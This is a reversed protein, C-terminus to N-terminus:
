VNGPSHLLAHRGNRMLHPAMCPSSHSKGMEVTRRASAPSDTSPHVEMCRSMTKARHDMAAIPPLPPLSTEVSFSFEWLFPLCRAVSALGSGWQCSVTRTRRVTGRRRLFEAPQEYVTSTVFHVFAALTHRALSDLDQQCQSFSAGSASTMDQVRTREASARDHSSRVTISTFLLKGFFLVCQYCKRSHVMHSKCYRVHKSM